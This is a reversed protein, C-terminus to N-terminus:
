YELLSRKKGKGSEPTRLAKRLYPPISTMCRHMGPDYFRLKGSIGEGIRKRLYSGTLRVPDHGTSALIFGWNAHFSPIFVTMPRTFSFLPRVAHYIEGFIFRDTMTLSTGQTCFLGEERLHSKMLTFFFSGFLDRSRLGPEPETLDSIIVDFVRDTERLYEMADAFVVSTRPDDFGGDSWRPLFERCLGVLEEDIDVMIAERVSRHRLVERLTAGEGGGLILVSEPSQLSCMAPHVLSEHYIFEDREASQIAGDLLLMRGFSYTDVISVQQFRTASTHIRKKVAFNRYEYPNKKDAIWDWVPERPM